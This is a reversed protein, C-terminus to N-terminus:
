CDMVRHYFPPYELWAKSIFDWDRCKVKVEYGEGDSAFIADEATSGDEKTSSDMRTIARGIADKLAQLAVSNGVILVDMHEMPQGYVNLIKM